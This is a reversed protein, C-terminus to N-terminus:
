AGVDPCAAPGEVELSRKKDIAACSKGTDGSANDRAVGALTGVGVIGCPGACSMQWKATFASAARVIM